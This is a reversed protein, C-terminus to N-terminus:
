CGHRVSSQQLSVRLDGVGASWEAEMRLLARQFGEFRILFEAAEAPELLRRVAIEMAGCRLQRAREAARRLGKVVAGCDGELLSLIGM